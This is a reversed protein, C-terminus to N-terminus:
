FSAFGSAVFRGYNVSQGASKSVSLGDIGLRLGGKAGVMIRVGAGFISSLDTESQDIAMKTGFLTLDGTTSTHVLGAGVYAYPRIRGPAQIQLASHFDILSSSVTSTNSGIGADAKGGDVFSFDFYSGFVRNKSWWNSVSFGITPLVNHEGSDATVRGASVLARSGVLNFTTGGFFEFDGATKAAEQASAPRAVLAVIAILASSILRTAFRAM